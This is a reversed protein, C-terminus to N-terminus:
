PTQEDDTPVHTLEAVGLAVHGTDHVVPVPQDDVCSFTTRLVEHREVITDLAKQLVARNLRGRLRLAKSQNYAPSAPELQNLFWMRRQAFSLELTEHRGIPRLSPTERAAPDADVMGPIRETDKGILTAMEAVTPSGFLCRLPIDSRFHTAVESVLRTAMLSHGGLDFFSDHIGIPRVGLHKEWLTALELEM